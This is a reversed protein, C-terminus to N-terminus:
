GLITIPCSHYETMCSSNLRIQVLNIHVTVSYQINSGLLSNTKKRYYKNLSQDLLLENIIFKRFDFSYTIM